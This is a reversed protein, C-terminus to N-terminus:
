FLESLKTQREEVSIRSGGGQGDYYAVNYIKDVLKQTYTKPDALKLCSACIKAHKTTEFQYRTKRGCVACEGKLPKEGEKPSQGVWLAVIGKAFDIAYSKFGGAAKETTKNTNQEM